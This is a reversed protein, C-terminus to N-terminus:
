IQFRCGWNERSEFNRSFVFIILNPILFAKNQYKQVPIQFCYQRIQFWGGRIQKVAFNRSFIFIGSNPVFVFAMNPYKKTQFKLFSKKYKFDAGAIRDAHLIKRFFCFHRFNLSFIGQQPIKPSSNWFLQQWIQFWCGCIQRISFIRPFIFIELNPVM